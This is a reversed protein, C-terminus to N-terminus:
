DNSNYALEAQRYYAVDEDTVSRSFVDWILSSRAPSTSSDLFSCLEDFAQKSTISPYEERFHTM